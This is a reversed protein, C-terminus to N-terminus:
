MMSLTRIGIYGDTAAKTGALPVARRCTVSVTGAVFYHAHFRGLDSEASQDLTVLLQQDREILALVGPLSLLEALEPGVDARLHIQEGILPQVSGAMEQTRDHQSGTGIERRVTGLPDHDVTLLAQGGEHQGQTGQAIMEDRLIGTVALADVFEM